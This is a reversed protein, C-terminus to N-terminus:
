RWYKMPAHHFRGTTVGIKASESWAATKADKGHYLSFTLLYAGDSGPGGSNNLLAGQVQVTVPVAASVVAPVALLALAAIWAAAWRETQTRGMM